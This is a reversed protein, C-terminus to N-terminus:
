IWGDPLGSHASSGVLDQRLSVFFSGFRVAILVISVPASRLVLPHAPVQDTEFTPTTDRAVHAPMAM